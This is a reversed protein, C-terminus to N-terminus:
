SRGRMRRLAEYGGTQMEALGRLRYLADYSTLWRDFRSTSSSFDTGPPFDRTDTAMYAAALGLAEGTHGNSALDGLRAFEGIEAALAHAFDTVRPFWAVTLDPQQTVPADFWQPETHELLAVADPRYAGTHEYPGAATM